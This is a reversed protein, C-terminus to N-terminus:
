PPLGVRRLLDAFRPDSRIPDYLSWLKLSSIYASQTAYAKELGAFAQEKDGLSIYVAVPFEPDVHERRALLLLQRLLQRAEQKRGERTYVYGRSSLYNPM